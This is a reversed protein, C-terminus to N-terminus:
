THSFSSRGTHLTIWSLSYMRSKKVTSCISNRIAFGAIETEVAFIKQIGSKVLLIKGYKPFLMVKRPISLLLFMLRCHLGIKPRRFSSTQTRVTTIATKSTTISSSSFLTFITVRLTPALTFSPFPPPPPSFFYEGWKRREIELKLM